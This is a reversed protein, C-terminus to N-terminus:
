SDRAFARVTALARERVAVLGDDGSNGDVTEVRGDAPPWTLRGVHDAPDGGPSWDFLVLDGREAQGAPVLRLGSRGVQAEALVAPAYLANFAGRRLGLEATVGGARLAALFAAFSCWPFGMERYRPAVGLEQGLLVLDAVRNSEPPQERLGAAAWAEMGAVAEARVERSREADRKRGLARQRFAPPLEEEGLLRRRDLPSLENGLQSEPYGAERKWQVAAGATIPGYDGDPTLGLVRQVDAVDPGHM